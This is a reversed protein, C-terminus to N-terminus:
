YNSYLLPVAAEDKPEEFKQEEKQTPVRQALMAFFCYALVAAGLLAEAAATTFFYAEGWAALNVFVYLSTFVLSLVFMVALVCSGGLFFLTRNRAVQLGPNSRVSFWTVVFGAVVALSFLASVVALLVRSMDVINESTRMLTVVIVMAISYIAVGGIAAIGAITLAFFIKKKEPFFADFNARLLVFAFISGVAAFLLAAFREVVHSAVFSVDFKQGEM